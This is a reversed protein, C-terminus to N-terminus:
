DGWFVVSGVVIDVRRVSGMEYGYVRKAEKVGFEVWGM